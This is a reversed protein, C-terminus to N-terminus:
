ALSHTRTVIQWFDILIYIRYDSYIMNSIWNKKIEASSDGFTKETVENDAHVNIKITWRLGLTPYAKLGRRASASRRLAAEWRLSNGSSNMWQGTPEDVSRRARALDILSFMPTPLGRSTFVLELATVPGFRGREVPRPEGEMNSRVGYDSSSSSADRSATVVRMEFATRSKRGATTSEWSRECRGWESM